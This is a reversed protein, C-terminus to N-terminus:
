LRVELGRPLADAVRHYDIFIAIEGREPESVIRLDDVAVEPGLDRRLGQVIRFRLAALMLDDIGEFLERRLGVGFEPRNVREGPSTFLIALLKNRLHRDADTTLAVSALDGLIRLPQSFFRYTM